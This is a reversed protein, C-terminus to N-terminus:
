NIIIQKSQKYLAVSHFQSDLNMKSRTLQITVPPQQHRRLQMIAAISNFVAKRAYEDYVCYNYLLKICLM